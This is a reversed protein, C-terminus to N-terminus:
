ESFIEEETMAMGGRDPRFTPTPEKRSMPRDIRFRNANENAFRRVRIAMDVERRAIAELGEFDKATLLEAGPIEKVAELNLLAGGYGTSPTTM